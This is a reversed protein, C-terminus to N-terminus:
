NSHGNNSTGSYNVDCYLAQTTSCKNVFCLCLVCCRHQVASINVFCLCLVCCRHQVASINVFCLRGAWSGPRGILMWHSSTSLVSYFFNSFGTQFDQRSVTWEGRRTTEKFDEQERTHLISECASGTLSGALVCYQPVCSGRFGSAIEFNRPVLPCFPSVLCTGGQPGLVVVRWQVTARVGQSFSWYRCPLFCM